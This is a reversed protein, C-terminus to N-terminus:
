LGPGAGARQGGSAARRARAAMQQGIAGMFMASNNINMTGFDAYQEGSLANLAEPGAFANLGALTGIM